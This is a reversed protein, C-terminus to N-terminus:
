KRVKELFNHFGGGKGHVRQKEKVEDKEIKIQAKAKM